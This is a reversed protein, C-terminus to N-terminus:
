AKRLITLPFAPDNASIALLAVNKAAYDRGLQALEAKV